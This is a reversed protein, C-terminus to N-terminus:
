IARSVWVKKKFGYDDDDNDSESDSCSNDGSNNRILGKASHDYGAHYGGTGGNYQYQEEKSHSNYEAETYGFGMNKTPGYAQNKVFGNGHGTHKGRIHPQTRAMGNMAYEGYGNSEEYGYAETKEYNGHNDFGHGMGGNSKQHRAAATPGGYGYVRGERKGPSSFGYSQMHATATNSHSGFGNRSPGHVQTKFMPPGTQSKYTAYSQANEEDWTEAMGYAKQPKIMRHTPKRIQNYCESETYAVAYGNQSGKYKNSGWDAYHGMSSDGTLGM